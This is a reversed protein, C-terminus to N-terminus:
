QCQELASELTSKDAVLKVCALTITNTASVIFYVALLISASILLVILAQKM